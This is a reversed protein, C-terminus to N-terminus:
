FVFMCTSSWAYAPFGISRGLEVFLTGPDVGEKNAVIGGRGLQGTWGAYTVQTGCNWGTSIHQFPAVTVNLGLQDSGIGGGVYPHVDTTFIQWQVGGTLCAGRWCGTLNVDVYGLNGGTAWDGVAEIGADARDLADGARDCLGGFPGCGVLGYPDVLNVPNNRVYPYRNLSQPANATGALPDQSLFRGTANDYYRARLYELGSSDVQEGTFTFENPQTGTQARIAGFVDYQYTKKVAGTSSTIATTSGLGDTHYYFKKNQSDSVSILDHGYLYRNGASDRLIVPM